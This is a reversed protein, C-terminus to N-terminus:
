VFRIGGEKRKVNLLMSHNNETKSRCIEVEKRPSLFIRPNWDWVALEVEDYLHSSMPNKLSMHKYVVKAIYCSDDLVEYDEEFDVELLDNQLAPDTKVMKEAVALLAPKKVVVGGLTCLDEWEYEVKARTRMHLDDMDLDTDLGIYEKYELEVNQTTSSTHILGGIFVTFGCAKALPALHCLLTADAGSFDGASLVTGELFFLGLPPVGKRGTGSNLVHRWM